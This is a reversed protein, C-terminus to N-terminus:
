ATYMYMDTGIMTSGYMYVPVQFYGPVAAYAFGLPVVTNLVLYYKLYM